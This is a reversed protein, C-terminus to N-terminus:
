FMRSKLVWVCAGGIIIMVVMYEWAPIAKKTKVEQRERQRDLARLISDVRAVVKSASDKVVERQWHWNNTEVRITEALATKDAQLLTVIKESEVRVTDHRWNWREVSVTDTHWLRVTDHVAVYETVVQKGQCSCCIVAFAALAAWMIAGMLLMGNERKRNMGTRMDRNDIVDIRDIGEIAEIGEGYM